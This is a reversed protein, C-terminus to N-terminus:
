VRVPMILQLLGDDNVSSLLTASSQDAPIRWSEQHAVVAWSASSPTRWCITRSSVSAKM